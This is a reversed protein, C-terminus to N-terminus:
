VKASLCAAAFGVRPRRPPFGGYAIRYLLNFAVYTRRLTCRSSRRSLPARTWFQEPSSRSAIKAELPRASVRNDDAQAPAFARYYHLDVLGTARRRAGDGRALVGFIDSASELPSRSPIWPKVGNTSASSFSPDWLFTGPAGPGRGGGFQWTGLTADTTPFALGLSRFLM